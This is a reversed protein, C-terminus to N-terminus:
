GDERTFSLGYGERLKTVREYSDSKTAGDATQCNDNGRMSELYIEALSSARHSDYNVWRLASKRVHKRRSQGQTEASLM